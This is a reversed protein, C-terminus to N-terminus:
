IVPQTVLGLWTGQDPLRGIQIHRMLRRLWKYYDRNYTVLSQPNSLIKFFKRFLSTPENQFLMCMEIDFDPELFKFGALMEKLLKGNQNSVYNM